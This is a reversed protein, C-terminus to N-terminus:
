QVWRTNPITRIVVEGSYYVLQDLWDLSEYSLTQSPVDVYLWFGFFWVWEPVRAEDTYGNPLSEISLNEKVVDWARDLSEPSYDLTGEGYQANITEVFRPLQTDRRQMFREFFGQHNEKTLEKTPRAADAFVKGM